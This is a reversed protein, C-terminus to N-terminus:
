GIPLVILVKSIADAAVAGGTLVIRIVGVEGTVDSILLPSILGGTTNVLWASLVFETCDDTNPMCALKGNLSSVLASPTTSLM